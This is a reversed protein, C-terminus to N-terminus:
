RQIKLKPRGKKLEELQAKTVKKAEAVGLFKLSPCRALEKIGADTVATKRLMLFQLRELGALQRLTADTVGTGSLVLFQLRELEALEKLSADTVKGLGQLNLNTLRRHSTVEKMGEDSVGTDSLDVVQLKDM